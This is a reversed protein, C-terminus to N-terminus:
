PTLLRPFSRLDQDQATLDGDQLPPLRTSRFQGPRVPGQQRSQGAHYRFRTEPPQPQQDGRVRDQAPVAVGDAAALGGLGLAAPGAPRDQRFM